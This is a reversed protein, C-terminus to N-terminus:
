LPSFPADSATAGNQWALSICEWNSLKNRKISLRYRGMKGM